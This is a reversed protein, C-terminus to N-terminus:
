CGCCAERKVDKIISSTLPIVIFFMAFIAWSPVNHQTSTPILEHEKGSPYVEKFTVTQQYRNDPPNFHPFQKKLEENFTSFIMTSEITANNERLSSIFANKFSNRVAPDFYLTVRISDNNTIDSFFDMAPMTLASMTKTVLLQIKTRIRKTAKEPIIVAIQYKGDLVLQRAKEQTLPIDDQTTVVKFIRSDTFGKKIQSALTDHDLDVFLVPVQPENTMTSWGFEQVLALITVMIMPMVFLLLLGSIDRVLILWEKKFASFYKFLM